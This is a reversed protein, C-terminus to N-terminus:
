KKSKKKQLTTILVVTVYGLAGYILLSLLDGDVRQIPTKLGGIMLGILFVLTSDHHKKLLFNLIKSMFFIGILIGLIFVSLVLFDLNAVTHAIYEYQNLMLLVYAGSIGPLIMASIAAAGSIFIMPLSHNETVADFSLIIIGTLLGLFLFPSKKLVINKNKRFLFVISAVILGVFYSFLQVENNKLLSEIIKLFIYLMVFVGLYLNVLFKFEKSKLVKLPHNINSFFFSISHVLQEYIGLILAITAGSIGPIADAIGMLSGNFFTKLISKTNM